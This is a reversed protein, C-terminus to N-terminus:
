KASASIAEEERRHRTRRSQIKEKRKTVQIKLKDMVLDIAAQMDDNEEKANINLRDSTLNIEVIRKQHELKLVANANGPHELLKEMRDLKGQIYDRLYDSSDLNKFTVSLHM